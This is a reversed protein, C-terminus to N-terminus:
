RALYRRVALVAEYAAVVPLMYIAMEAFFFPFIYPLFGTWAMASPDSSMASCAIAGAIYVVSLGLWILGYRGLRELFSM